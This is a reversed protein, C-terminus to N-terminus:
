RGAAVVPPQSRAAYVRVGKLLDVATQLPRDAVPEFGFRKAFETADTLDSRARQVRLKAEDELSVAVAVQPEIGKEHISIGGPTYYRATTLRLAEGNQLRFVTQVSGKGFTKEGVIVARGTDKLAGAMVESASASGSNVLVAVPLMRGAARPGARLDQRSEPSRGQTYVIVEGPRFFPEAVDVASELLGGPNNRLDLVLAAMGQQDLKQLAAKFEAGTRNSFHTLQIYGIGPELMSVDRLSEIKILERTLTLDLTQKSSPRYLTVQVRTKPKGRLHEVVKDMGLKEMSQGDVRIIQDGRQIGAREGPTGAIPAIVVIRGDRREVQVGIGGFKGDMEEQLERSEEAGMFESHPDLSKLMGELAARTLKQYDADKEDVYNDAVLDLVRRFYATNRELERNPWWNWSAPALRSALSVLLLGFAAGGAVVLFRRLM